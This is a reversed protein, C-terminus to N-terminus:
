GCGSSPPAGEWAAAWSMTETTRALGLTGDRGVLIIGGRMGTREHLTGMVREAADRPQAGAELYFCARAALAARLYGEGEGTGSAAGARDDAYNGAGPIPSDGVRGSRKGVMGGTSTAAAVHGAADRAVAGVTGGAWNGSAGDRVVALRARAADTVMGEERAHGAGTAFREAGAGAYLM